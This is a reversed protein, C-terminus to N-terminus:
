DRYIEEVSLEIGPPDLRILGSIHPHTVIAGESGHRHHIVERRKARVILYHRISPVRFYDAPKGAFSARPCKVRPDDASTSPSLVEVVIAPNTAAVADDPLAEGCNVVADPEDDTDDGVEATIGDPLAECPLGATRLERDLARWVRAKLRAHIVREPSMAVPEGAIREYRTTQGDAWKRYADRSIQYGM